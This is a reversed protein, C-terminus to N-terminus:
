LKEIRNSRLENVFKRQTDELIGQFSVINVNYHKKLGNAIETMFRSFGTFDKVTLLQRVITSNPPSNTLRLLNKEMKQAVFSRLKNLAENFEDGIHRAQM